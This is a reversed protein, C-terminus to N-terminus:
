PRREVSARAARAAARQAHCICVFISLLIWLSTSRLGQHAVTYSLAPILMVTARFGTRETIRLLFALFLAVGVVGYSFFITGASSHVETAGIATTARFRSTGGEGAGLLWYEKNNLIRDYGREEFFNWQQYRDVTLRQQTNDIANTIPGGIAVLGLIVIAAVIIRRPNSIMTLAFLIACGIVAARSASVLALYVCTTIGIGAKLAGLGLGRRGLAMVSACCLAFFGLQNPNNFFGIGRLESGRHVVVSAVAQMLVSVLLLHMTLWLFRMGYRQYFVCVVLFVLTNFIYYLPWILFTDPGILGFNGLLLAWGWDVVMVWVTFWVLTMLPRRASRDLHGNWRLLALPILPLILVDGPQPLGSGLVYFPIALVFLAWVFLAPDRMLRATERIMATVTRPIKVQAV